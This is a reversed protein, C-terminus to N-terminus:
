EGGLERRKSELRRQFDPNSWRRTLRYAAATQRAAPSEVPKGPPTPPKEQKPKAPRLTIPPLPAGDQYAAFAQDQLRQRETPTIRGAAALRRLHKKRNKYTSYGPRTSPM